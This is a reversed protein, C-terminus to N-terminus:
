QRHRAASATSAPSSARAAASPARVPVEEAPEDAVIVVPEDRPLAGRMMAAGSRERRHHEIAVHERRVAEDRVRRAEAEAAADPAAAAAVGTDEHGARRLAVGLPFALHVDEDGALNLTLSCRM